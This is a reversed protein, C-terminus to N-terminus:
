NGAKVHALSKLESILEDCVTDLYFRKNNLYFDKNNNGCILFKENDYHLMKEIADKIDTSTQNCVVNLSSAKNILDAGDGKIMGLIPRGYMFYEILKQPIMNSTECNWFLPCYLVDANKYFSVTEERTVRGHFIVIDDLKKNHVLDKTKELDIGSGVIDLILKDKHNSLAIAEILLDLHIFKAVTGCYLIHMKGDKLYDHNDKLLETPYKTLCPQYIHKFKTHIKLQEEIYKCASPSAYVIEDFQRYLKISYKKIIKYILSGKKTFSAAVFSEPWLDLGYMLNPIGRKKCFSGTYELCVLPSLGISIVADFDSKIRKLERKFKIRSDLYNLLLSINNQKRLKEKVRIVKLGNIEEYKQYKEYGDYFKWLGYNPRGTLVTVDHGKKHILEAIPGISFSEPFFRPTVILLKM